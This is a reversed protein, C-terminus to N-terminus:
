RCGLAEGLFGLGGIARLKRYREPGMYAELDRLIGQRENKLRAFLALVEEKTSAVDAGTRASLEHVACVYEGVWASEEPSLGLGEGLFRSALDLWQARSEAREQELLEERAALAMEVEAAVLAQVKPDSLARAPSRDQQRHFRSRAAVARCAVLKRGAEKLRTRCTRLLALDAATSEEVQGSGTRPGTHKARPAPEPDKSTLFILLWTGLAISLLWPLAVFVVRPNRIM